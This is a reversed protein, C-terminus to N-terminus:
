MGSERDEGAREAPFPRRGTQLAERVERVIDVVQGASLDEKGEMEEDVLAKMEELLHEPELRYNLLVRFLERGAAQLSVSPFDRVSKLDKEEFSNLLKAYHRFARKFEEPCGAVDVAALYRRFSIEAELHVADEGTSEALWTEKQKLHVLLLVKRMAERQRGKPGKKLKVLDLDLEAADPSAVDQGPSVGLAAAMMVFPLWKRMFEPIQVM